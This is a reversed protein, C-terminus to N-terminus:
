VAEWPLNPFWKQITQIYIQSNIKYEIFDEVVVGGWFVYIYCYDIPKLYGWFIARMGEVVM